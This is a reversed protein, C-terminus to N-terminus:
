SATMGYGQHHVKDHFHKIILASMHSNKPLLVPHKVHPHLMAQSLRGGVRLIGENDLFPNLKHLRGNKTKVVVEKLKLSKIEDSFAEKQVLKIIFLEAEKREELSTSEKTPQKM